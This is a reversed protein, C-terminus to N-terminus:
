NPQYEPHGTQWLAFALINAYKEFEKAKTEDQGHGAKKDVLLLNNTDNENCAQIRATFKISFWAPVRPDNLGATLLTAPYREGKKLHHYADMELLAKFEKPDNVNGYEKINRAGNSRNESRLTNMMGFEIIAAQFLDPRETIARGIMIGGASGSWIALRKPTTINNNILYQACSIFDKWTNPKTAKHGAKHWANGKEGGGRVHAIAYIGGELVWLMRKLKYSPRMSIGYAGYGDMLVRNNDNKNINKNYILSLPIKEGDHGLIEIEEVVINSLQLPDINNNLNKDKLEGYKYEFREDQTVWGSANIWLEPHHIGRSKLTINGYIQPLNIERLANKQLKFLNAKVGNKSTVLYLGESTIEFDTIVQDEIQDVLTRPNDFDPNIISTSCIKFNPANKATLYILSDGKISYHKIKDSAKYLPQWNKSGIQNIPLYYTEYFNAGKRKVKGIIYKDNKNKFSVIPIEEEKLKIRPNNKRSFFDKLQTPDAGLKYIVSKSNLSFDKSKPNSGLYQLYIFGSNDPLWHIGGSSMPWVNSITQPAISKSSIDYIILDSIEQGMQTLCIIVKSGDWNPAIYNIVFDSDTNPNYDKPDYLLVEPTNYSERYYLKPINDESRRKLYFYKNNETVNIKSVIFSKKNDFQVQKDILTQKKDINYLINNSITNQQDIWYQVKPDKLNEAYRYPDKIQQGHYEDIVIDPPLLYKQKQCSVLVLSIFFLKIQM